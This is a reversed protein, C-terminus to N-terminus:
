KGWLYDFFISGLMGLQALSYGEEVLSPIAFTFSKRTLYYFAYGIYMGYFTRIRWYKYKKKIQEPDQIKEIFSAPQLLNLM